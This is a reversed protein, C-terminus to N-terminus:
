MVSLTSENLIKFLPATVHILSKNLSEDGRNWSKVMQENEVKEPEGRWM